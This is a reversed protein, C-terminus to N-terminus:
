ELEKKIEHEALSVNCKIIFRTEYKLSNDTKRTLNFRITKPETVKVLKNGYGHLGM